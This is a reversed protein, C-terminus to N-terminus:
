SHPKIPPSPRPCRHFEAVPADMTAIQLRLSLRELSISVAPRLLAADLIRDFNNRQAPRRQGNLTQRDVVQVHGGTDWIEAILDNGVANNGAAKDEGFELSVSWGLAAYQRAIYPGCACGANRILVRRRRGRDM